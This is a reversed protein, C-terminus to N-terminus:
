TEVIKKLIMMRCDHLFEASTSSLLATCDTGLVVLLLTSISDSFLMSEVYVCM